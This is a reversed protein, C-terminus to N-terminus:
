GTLWMVTFLHIQSIYLLQQQSLQKTAEKQRMMTQYLEKARARDSETDLQTALLYVRRASGSALATAVDCAVGADAEGM